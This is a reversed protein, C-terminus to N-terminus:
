KIPIFKIINNVAYTVKNNENTVIILKKKGFRKELIEWKKDCLKQHHKIQELRLVRERKEIKLDTIRRLLIDESPSKLHVVLDSLNILWDPIDIDTVYKTVDKDIYLAFVLHSLLIVLKYKEKLQSLTELYKTSYINQIKERPANELKKYIERDVKLTADFNNILGLHYMLIRSESTILTNSSISAISNAVTDKGVANIGYIIILGM